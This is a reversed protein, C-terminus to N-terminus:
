LCGRENAKETVLHGPLMVSARRPNAVRMYFHGIGALGLMLGPSEGRTGCPWTFEKESFKEIGNCAVSHILDMGEQNGTTQIGSLLIDANGALGHCLSYNGTGKELQSKIARRTTSLAADAEQRYLDDDRDSLIMAELRALAIGPAGHCWSIGFPLSTSAPLRQRPFTRLDPWNQDSAVYWYREYAFAKNAAAYFRQDGTNQFLRLLALGVGAAGHSLGTLGFQQPMLVSQWYSGKKFPKERRLLEEGLQMLYDRLWPQDYVDLLPIVGMVAGALGSLLDPEAPGLSERSLKKLLGVAASLLQEERTQIGIQAAAFAIGTWGTYFGIMGHAPIDELSQLANKMGAIATRRLEQDGTQEYLDSLFRSVGSCGDYLDPGMAKFDMRTVGDKFHRPDPEFSLWTCRSQHWVAESLLQRGIEYATRLCLESDARVSRKNSPNALSLNASVSQQEIPFHYVDESGPNLYPTRTDIGLKSFGEFVAQQRDELTRCGSDYAAILLEALIGCRDLGFSHGHGPDEAMGIGRALPRTLAPIGWQLDAAVVPYVQQLCTVVRLWDAKCHYVIVADNRTFRSPDNLIKIRYTLEEDNFLTTTKSLFKVAGSPNLHWYWRILENGQPALENGGVAIYFGPSIAPLDKPLWLGVQPNRTPNQQAPIHCHEPSVTLKLGDRSIQFKNDRSAVLKWGTSWQGQGHNERALDDSFPTRSLFRESNMSSSPKAFGQCYFDQYLQAQLVSFLYNRKAEPTLQEEYKAPLSPSKLGFWSFVTSSLIATANVASKLQATFQDM